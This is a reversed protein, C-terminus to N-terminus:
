KNYDLSMQYYKLSLVNGLTNDNDEKKNYIQYNSSYSDRIFNRTLQKRISYNDRILDFLEEFDGNDIYSKVILNINSNVDKSIVSSRLLAFIIDNDSIDDFKSTFMKLSETLSINSAFVLSAYDEGVLNDLYKFYKKLRIEIERENVIRKVEDDHKLM